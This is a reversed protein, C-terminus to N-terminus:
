IEYEVGGWHISRKGSLAMVVLGLVIAAPEYLLALPLLRWRRIASIASGALFVGLSLRIVFITLILSNGGIAAIGSLVLSLMWLGITFFLISPRVRNIRLSRQLWEQWNKSAHVTVLSPKSFDIRYGVSHLLRALALDETFAFGIADFGGIELFASKYFAFNGFLVGPPQGLANLLRCMRMYYLADVTQLAALIKPNGRFEVLGATATVGASRLRRRSQEIWNEPVVADADTVLILKGRALRIGRDLAVQRATLQTRRYHDIRLLRLQRLNLGLARTTTRDSSRDDVLVIEAEGSSVERNRAISGLCREITAAGNHVTVVM